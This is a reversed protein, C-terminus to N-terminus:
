WQKIKQHLPACMNITIYKKMTEGKQLSPKKKKKTIQNMIKIEVVSM